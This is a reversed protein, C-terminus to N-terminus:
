LENKREVKKLSDFNSELDEILKIWFSKDPKDSKTVEDRIYNLFILLHSLPIEEKGYTGKLNDSVWQRFTEPNKLNFQKISDYNKM